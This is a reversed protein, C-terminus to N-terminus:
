ASANPGCCSLEASVSRTFPFPPLSSILTARVSADNVCVVRRWDTALDYFYIWSQLLASFGPFLGDGVGVTLV